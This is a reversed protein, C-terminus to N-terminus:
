GTDHASNATVLHSQGHWADRLRYIYEDFFGLKSHIIDDFKGNPRFQEPTWEIRYRIVPFDAELLDKLLVRIPFHTLVCSLAQGLVAKAVELDEDESIKTFCSMLDRMIRSSGSFHRALHGRCDQPSSMPYSVSYIYWEDSVEGVVISQIGRERLGRAFKGSRQRDM